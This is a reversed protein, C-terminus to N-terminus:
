LKQASFGILVPSFKNDKQTYDMFKASSYMNRVPSILDRNYKGKEKKTWSPLTLFTIVKCSLPSFAITRCHSNCCFKFDNGPKLSYMISLFSIKELGCTM